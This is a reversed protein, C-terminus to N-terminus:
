AQGSNTTQVQNLLDAIQQARARADERDDFDACVCIERKDRQDVVQFTSGDFQNVGNRPTIAGNKEAPEITDREPRPHGGLKRQMRLVEQYVRSRDEDEEWAEGLIELDRWCQRCVASRNLPRLGGCEV